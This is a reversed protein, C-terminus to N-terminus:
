IEDSLKEKKFFFKLQNSQDKCTVTSFKSFFFHPRTLPLPAGTCGRSLCTSLAAEGNAFTWTADVSENTM